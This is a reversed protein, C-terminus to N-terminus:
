LCDPTLGGNKVCKEIVDAVYNGYNDTLKEWCASDEAKGNPLWLIEYGQEALATVSNYTSDDDARCAVLIIECGWNVFYNLSKPLRSNPDGQTEIGVLVDGIKITAKVEKNDLIPAKGNRPVYITTTDPYHLALINFAKRISTTKGMDAKGINVIAIKM